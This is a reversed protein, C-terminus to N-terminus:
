SGTLLVHDIPLGISSARRLKGVSASPVFRMQIAPPYSPVPAMTAEIPIKLQGTLGHADGVGVGVGVGVGTCIVSCARPQLICPRCFTSRKQLPGVEPKMSM